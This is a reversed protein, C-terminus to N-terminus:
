MFGSGNATFYNSTGSGLFESQFNFAGGLSSPPPAAAASKGGLLGAGMLTETSLSITSNMQAFMEKGSKKPAAKKAKTAAPVKAPAFNLLESFGQGADKANRETSSAPTDNEKLSDRREPSSKAASASATAAAAAPKTAESKKNDDGAIEKYQEDARMCEAFANAAQRIGAAALVSGLLQVVSRQELGVGFVDVEEMSMSPDAKAVSKKAGKKAAKAQLAQMQMQQQQKCMFSLAVLTREGRLQLIERVAAHRAAKAPVGNWSADKSTGADSNEDAGKTKNAGGKKGKGKGAVKAKGGKLHMYTSGAEQDRQVGKEDVVMSYLQVAAMRAEKSDEVELPVWGPAGGESEASQQRWGACTELLGQVVARSPASPQCMTQEAQVAWAAAGMAKQVSQQTKKSAATSNGSSAEASLAQAYNDRAGAWDRLKELAQAARFYGKSWTPDAAIAKTADDLAHKAGAEPNLALRAASRNGYLTHVISTQPPNAVHEAIAKTYHEEAEKYKKLKFADNGAKKMVELEKNKATVLAERPFVPIKGTQMGAFIADIETQCNPVSFEGPKIVYPTWKFHLGGFTMMLPNADATKTKVTTLRFPSAQVLDATKAVDQTIDGMFCLGIPNKAGTILSQQNAAFTVVHDGEDGEPRTRKLLLHPCLAVRTSDFQDHWMTSTCGSPHAEFRSNFDANAERFSKVALKMVDGFSVDWMRLHTSLVPATAHGFDAVICFALEHQYLSRDEGDLSVHPLYAASGLNSQKEHIKQASILMPKLVKLALKLDAPIQSSSTLTKVANDFFTARAADSPQAHYSACMQAVALRSSGITLDGIKADFSCDELKVNKTAVVADILKTAFTTLTADAM